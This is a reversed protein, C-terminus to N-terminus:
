GGQPEAALKNKAMAWFTYISLATGFPINIINVFAAVMAAAPGWQRNKLLGWGAVLSPLGLLFLFAGVAVGILLPVLAGVYAGEVDYPIVFAPIGMPLLVFPIAIMPMMGCFINAAAIIFRHPGKDAPRENLVARITDIDSRLQQPSMGASM